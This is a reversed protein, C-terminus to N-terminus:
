NGRLLRWIQRTEEVTLQGPASESGREVTAFTFLAGLLPAMVRSMRGQEGMCFAILPMEYRRATPLLNLIKLNDAAERAWTVIKVADAGALRCEHFLELLKKKSPTKDFNHYSLILRTRNGEEAIAARLKEKGGDATEMEVDVFDVGLSIAERLVGIRKEEDAVSSNGTPRNTVLVKVAGSARVAEILEGVRAGPIRDMRLELVDALAVSRKIIQLADSPTRAMIPICIM